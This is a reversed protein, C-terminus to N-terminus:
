EILIEFTFIKRCEFTFLFLFKSIGEIMHTGFLNAFVIIPKPFNHNHIKNIRFKSKEELFFFFLVDMELLSIINFDLIIIDIAILKDDIWWDITVNFASGISCFDLTQEISFAGISQDLKFKKNFM